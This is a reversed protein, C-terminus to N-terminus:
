FNFSTCIEDLVDIFLIWAIWIWSDCVKLFQDKALRKQLMTMVFHGKKYLANAYLSSCTEPFNPDFYLGNITSQAANQLATSHPNKSSSIVIRGYKSEYDCVQKLTKNMQFLYESTGFFREVFLGTM